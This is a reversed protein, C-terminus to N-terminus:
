LGSVSLEWGSPKLFHIRELGLHLVEYKDQNINMKYSQALDELKNQIKNRDEFMFAIEDKKERDALTALMAKLIKGTDHGLHHCPSPSSCLEQDGWWILELINM